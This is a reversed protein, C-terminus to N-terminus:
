EDTCDGHLPESTTMERTELGFGRFGGSVSTLAMVHGIDNTYTREM